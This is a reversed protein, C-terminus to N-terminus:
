LQLARTSAPAAQVPLCSEKVAPPDTFHLGTAATLKPLIAAGFREAFRAREEPAAVVDGPEDEREDTIIALLLAPQDGACQFDRYVGVPVDILDFPELITEDEGHENWRFRIRGQLCMFTERSRLHVHLPVKGGPPIDLMCVVMGKAGAVAPLADPHTGEAAHALLLHLPPTLAAFAEAPISPDPRYNMHVKRESFRAIQPRMQDPTITRTQM